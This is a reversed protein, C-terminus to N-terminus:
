FEGSWMTLKEYAEEQTSSDEALVLSTHTYPLPSGLCTNYKLAECTTTKKCKDEFITGNPSLVAGSGSLWAAWVCLMGYFGVIPSRAQSSMKTPPSSIWVTRQFGLGFLTLYSRFGRRKKMWKGKYGCVFDESRTEWRAMDLLFIQPARWVKRATRGFKKWGASRTRDESSSGGSNRWEGFFFGPLELFTFFSFLSVCVCRRWSQLFRMM